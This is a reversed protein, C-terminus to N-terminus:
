RGRSKKQRPTPGAKLSALMEDVTDFKPSVRGKRIDDLGEALQADLIKRQEPTYEDAATPLEPLITIIRGSVRFELRDGTKIGAQRQVEPPVTLASKNKVTVTM